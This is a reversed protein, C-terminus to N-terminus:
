PGDPGVILQLLPQSKSFSSVFTDPISFENSTLIEPFIRCRYRNPLPDRVSYSREKGVTKTDHIDTQRLSFPFSFVDLQVM